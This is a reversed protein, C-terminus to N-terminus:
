SLFVLLLVLLGVAFVLSFFGKSKQTM